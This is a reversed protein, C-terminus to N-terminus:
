LSLKYAVYGGVRAQVDADYSPGYARQARECEEIRAADCAPGSFEGGDFEADRDAAEGWNQHAAVIASCARSLRDDGRLFRSATRAARSAALAEAVRPARALAREIRLAKFAQDRTVFKFAGKNRM